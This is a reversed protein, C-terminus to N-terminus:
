AHYGRPTVMRGEVVRTASSGVVVCTTMGVVDPDLEGLTTLGVRQQARGVNTAVGVPTTPSRHALLIRRAADLQWPRGQSRPNYLSVVLDAAAVARLRSEITPWPTLLDSLSIAAHDHGLPAGLAAAAATAATIGPVVELDFACAPGSALELAISAMAYVGADGSCVLAVARGGIAAHVARCARDQEDGIPSRVISQHPGILDSCQDVYPGYGIVIEAHRVAAAAAPTRHRADGPGLGVIALYGRPQRRRAVAVAAHASTRKTVVLDAGPGAALLAAAEAVSPTGVASRVAESPTPVRVSRLTEAPFLRLCGGLESPPAAPREASKDPEVKRRFAASRGLSEVAPPVSDAGRRDDLDATLTSPPQAAPPPEVNRRFHADRPPDPRASEVLRPVAAPTNRDVVGHRVEEPSEASSAPEMHRRFRAGRRGSEVFRSVSWLAPEEARRDITAVASLCRADLGAEALSDSLLGLVEDPPAGTSTGIGAVLTPPRLVSLGRRGPVVRDTIVVREPGSGVPLTSPLPWSLPNDVVPARGDLMARTVGAVDGEAVFGPLADLPCTGTADTATSVVPTAGVLSAVQRALGNGGVLGGEGDRHGGSLSVAFRGADDLCVVAPDERKDALLPALIRVAAGTALVLVFADVDPWRERVTAAANGHRHEFPLRSALLRGRETVSVSLV